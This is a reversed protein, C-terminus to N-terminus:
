VSASSYVEPTKDEGMEEEEEEKLPPLPYDNKQGFVQELYESARVSGEIPTDRENTDELSGQDAPKRETPWLGSVRPLGRLNGVLKRFQSLTAVVEMVQTVRSSLDNMGAAIQDVDHLAVGSGTAGAPSAFASAALNKKETGPVALSGVGPRKNGGGLPNTPTASGKKAGSLSITSHGISHSPTSFHHQTILVEKLYHLMEKFVTAM